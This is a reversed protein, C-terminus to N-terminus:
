STKCNGDTKEINATNIRTKFCKEGKKACETRIVLATRFVINARRELNTQMFLLLM